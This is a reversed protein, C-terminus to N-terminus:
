EDPADQAPPRRNLRDRLRSPEPYDGELAAVLYRAPDKAEREPLWDLQRAIREVGHARVMARIDEPAFRLVHRRRWVAGEPTGPLEEPAHGLKGMVVREVEQRPAAYAARSHAIVEARRSVAVQQM